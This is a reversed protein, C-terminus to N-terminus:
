VPGPASAFAAVVVPDGRALLAAREPVTMRPETVPDVAILASGDQYNLVVAWLFETVNEPRKARGLVAVWEARSRDAADRALATRFYKM